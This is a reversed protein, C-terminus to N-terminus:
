LKSAVTNPENATPVRPGANSEAMFPSPFTHFLSRKQIALHRTPRCPESYLAFLFAQFYEMQPTELDLLMDTVRQQTGKM